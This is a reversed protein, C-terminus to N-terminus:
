TMHLAGSRRTQLPSYLNWLYNYTVNSTKMSISTRITNRTRVGHLRTGHTTVHQLFIYTNSGDVSHIPLHAPVATGLSKILSKLVSKGENGQGMMGYRGASYCTNDFRLLSLRCVICLAFFPLLAYRLCLRQNFLLYLGESLVNLFNAVRHQVRSPAPTFRGHPARRPLIRCSTPQLTGVSQIIRIAPRRPTSSVRFYYGTRWSIRFLEANNCPGQRVGSAGSRFCRIISVSSVSMSASFVQWLTVKNVVFEVYVPKSDFGTRPHHCSDARAVSFPM